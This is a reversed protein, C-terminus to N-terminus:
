SEIPQGDKYLVCRGITVGEPSGPGPKTGVRIVYPMARKGLQVGTVHGRENVYIALIEGTPRGSPQSMTPTPPWAPPPGAPKAPEDVPRPEPDDFIAAVVDRVAKGIADSLGPKPTM